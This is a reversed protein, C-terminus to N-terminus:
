RRIQVTSVCLRTGYVRLRARGFGPCEPPLLPLHLHLPVRSPPIMESASAKRSSLQTQAAQASLLRDIEVQLANREHEDHSDYMKRYLTPLSAINGVQQQSQSGFATDTLGAGFGSASRQQGLGAEQQQQAPQEQVVPQSAEVIDAEHGTAMEIAAESGALEAVFAGSPKQAAAPQERVPSSTQSPAQKQLKGRVAQATPPQRAQM